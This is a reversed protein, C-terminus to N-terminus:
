LPIRVVACLVLASGLLPVLSLRRHLLDEVIDSKVVLDANVLRREVSRLEINLALVHEALLIRDDRYLDIHKKGLLEAHVVGVAVVRLLYRVDDM